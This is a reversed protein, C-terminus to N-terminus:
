RVVSPLWLVITPFAILLAMVILHLGVFPLASKYIDGMTTDPPAVGKMVFMSMGFPPTIMALEINLLFIVGFWVENFGLANVVPMFIPLTIMMISIIEMFMGMFIGVVQTAILIIIPAVPLNLSFQVLGKTAGSFALIQSFATAGAIIMFIMITIRLSGRVSKKAVEWNLRRNLFALIFMGLAGTAAAETPTAIGLIIVGIVLFIIVGVPLIYRVSAILKEGLSCPRVTYPPAISPQLYCRLIIYAAFLVSMLLGPVIIGILMGAISIQGLAGMLIALDSPPIMIALGGSGLIPGLSMAKKYGRKEMEPVLTSGLMAVSAVSAGTLTAFITGGGVALLALRGPLRGLWRDLADLLLPAMGSRYMIEGMLIFLPLPLLVYTCLSRRLSLVLQILGVEGGWLVFVGIVNIILFTFAVPMGAAMLIALSGFIVLLFLPWEM